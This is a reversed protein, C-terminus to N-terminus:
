CTARVGPCVGQLVQPEDVDGRRPVARRSADSYSACHPEGASAALFADNAHEAPSFGNVLLRRLSKSQRDALLVRLMLADDEPGATGVREILYVSAIHVGSRKALDERSWGSLSRLSRIDM